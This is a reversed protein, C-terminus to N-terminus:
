ERLELLLLSRVTLSKKFEFTGDEYPNDEVLSDVFSDDSEEEEDGEESMESSSASIAQVAADDKDLVEPEKENDETEKLEPEEINEQEVRKPHIVKFSFQNAPPTIPPLENSDIGKFGDRNSGFHFVRKRTRNTIPTNSYELDQLGNIMMKEPSPISGISEVKGISSVGFGSLPTMKKSILRRTSRDSDTIRASNNDEQQPSGASSFFTDKKSLIKSPNFTKEYAEFNNWFRKTESFRKDSFQETSLRGERETRTKSKLPKRVTSSSNSKHFKSESDQRPIPFIKSYTKSSRKSRVIKVSVNQSSSHNLSPPDPSENLNM